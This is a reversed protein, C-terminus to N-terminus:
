LSSIFGYVKDPVKAQEWAGWAAPAAVFPWLVPAFMLVTIGAVAAKDLWKGPGIEVNITHEVREFTINLAVSMAVLMRWWGPKRAQLLVRGDPVKVQQVDFRQTQLWSKVADVVGDIRPPICPFSRPQNMTSKDM